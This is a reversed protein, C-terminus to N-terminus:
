RRRVPATRKWADVLELVDARSERRAEDLWDRVWIVLVVVVFVALSGAIAAISRRPWSKRAPPVAVEVITLAPMDRVEQVRAEEYGRALTAVVEQKTQTVRELRALQARLTPSQQYSRNREIFAVEAVEAARLEALATDLREEAFIRQQRSQFQLRTITFTNLQDLIRNAVGASLEPDGLTVTVSILGSKNLGIGMRRRLKKTAVEVQRRYSGSTAKVFTRFDVSDGSRTAYRSTVVPELIERTGVLDAYFAPSMGSLAGLNVDLGFQDALAALSTGIGATEASQATFRATAAYRRPLLWAVGYALVGGLFATIAILRWRLVLPVLLRFPAFTQAGPAAPM